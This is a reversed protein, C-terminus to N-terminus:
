ALNPQAGLSVVAVEPAVAAPTVRCPKVPVICGDSEEGTHMGMTRSNGEHAPGVHRRVCILYGLNWRFSVDGRARPRRSSSAGRGCALEAPLINSEPWSCPTLEEFNSRPSRWSKATAFRTISCVGRLQLSSYGWDQRTAGARAGRSFGGDGPHRGRCPGRRPERARLQGDKLLIPTLTLNRHASPTGFSGTWSPLM